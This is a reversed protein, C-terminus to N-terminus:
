PAPPRARHLAQPGSVGKLRHRGTFSWRFQERALDHVEQTCLVSGPHAIGTVRSALNVSHGFYDGARQLAPGVAVGARLSPLEADQFAQVLSLAASVLAAPQPSVFMAADGITKVLRAPPATREAALEALAGAVQGLEEVDVQTGLRTFGVVDAFCVAVTQEAGLRGSQRQARGLMGRRVAERLHAKFTASFVPQLAPVLRGALEVFRDAVEQESDGPGLFSEVFTGTATAALRAMSEGLVRTMEAIAEESLGSQMFLRTSRAVELDEEGFVREQLGAEPLGSLRRIRLMLKAPVETLREVDEASYCGGLLREVPLLVLREEAVADRLAALTFGQETLAALLRERVAREEGHLGDLLGEAAFDM